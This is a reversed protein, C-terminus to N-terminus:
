NKVPGKSVEKGEKWVSEIKRTNRIDDFPNASLILLDAKKGRELTGKEQDIYLAAAANRTSITIAQAPTLGAKVMLEMELHETFGQTRVPFAGSDTGLAVKIGADHIKKLNVMATKFAAMNRQYDPSNRIKEGYAKDTIMEFVGPELSAKFFADNIWDPNGAYVFQYEDLSLTPIYTVNKQKMKTLLDQDVEKDRISHAIIDIGAETLKRADEVYFLHAAVRINRKHAERIIAQYIEPKMKQANGGHDDVWIKVVTPKVAALKEMMAPVEEPTNPRLLLNMWSGPNPDPTNFGYGASYLRAGPLLGAQTSDILGNFIMPRDTGMALVATVGYDEYKKLHRLLNERTYNDASSTTGKLTGVHAHACILSPMVTKGSLDIERAGDTKIGKQIATILGGTILIDTQTRPASGTGDIVTANKLLISGANQALVGASCLAISMQFLLLLKKMM